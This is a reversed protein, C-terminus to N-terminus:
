PEEEERIRKLKIRNDLTYLSLAVMAAGMVAIILAGMTSLETSFPNFIGNMVALVVGAAGVVPGILNLTQKEFM